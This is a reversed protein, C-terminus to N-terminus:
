RAGAEHRDAVTPEPLDYLPVRARASLVIQGVVWALTVAVLGAALWGPQMEDGLAGSRDFSVLAATLVVLQLGYTLLAVLLSASPMLHAVVHVVFSGTVLVTLVLGAGVAAGLAAPRGDVLAGAVVVLLGVPVAALAAVSLVGLGPDRRVQKTETTMAAATETSPMLPTGSSRNPTGAHEHFSDCLGPPDADPTM